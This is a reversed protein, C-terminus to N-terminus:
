VLVPRAILLGDERTVPLAFDFRDVELALEADRRPFWDPWGAPDHDAELRISRLTAREGRLLAALFEAGAYLALGIECGDDSVVARKAEADRARATM